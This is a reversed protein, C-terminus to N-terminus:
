QESISISKKNDNITLTLTKGELIWKATSGTSTATETRVGNLFYHEYERVKLIFNRIATRMTPQTGLDTSPDFYAYYLIEDAGCAIAYWSMVTVEQPTPYRKGSWRFSQVHAVFVGGKQDVAQRARRFAYPTAAINEDPIPYSQQGTKDSLGAYLFINKTYGVSALTLLDPHLAKYSAEILKYGEVTNKIDVDDGPTHAFVPSGEDFFGLANIVDEKDANYEVHVGLGLKKALNITAIDGTDLPTHIYDMGIRKIEWMDSLRKADQSPYHSIHYIGIPFSEKKTLIKKNEITQSFEGFTFCPFLFLIFILSFIHKM